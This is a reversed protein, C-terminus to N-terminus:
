NIILYPHNKDLVDTEKTFEVKVMPVFDDTQGDYITVDMQQQEETMEAFIFHALEHYTM